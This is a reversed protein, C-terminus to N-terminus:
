HSPARPASAGQTGPPLTFQFVAGHRAGQTAWLRGGHAEIIARCISLGMGMGSAKTSYFPEFVRELNAPDIGPGSDQVALLVGNSDVRATSILLEKPRDDVVSMAEAANLVLNLIVQQLQVRDGMVAPLDGAAESRVIVQSRQLEPLSLAIVERTADNLDMLETPGDKKAFLAHLRKIVATARNADRIMRRIMESAGNVDPPDNALMRFGTNANTLIGSLPQNVEHAISASMQGIVAVRNAHAMEIRIEHYRRESQRAAEEARKRETLDVAFAVRQEMREGFPAAGLLVPVRTGDRRLFEKEYTQVAGTGRLEGHSREDADRWDQPTMDQWRLLGTDLENRGHGVLQLFADNCELIRGARDLVFIGIINSDVLCQIKAELRDTWQRIETEARKRAAIETKLEETSEVAQYAASAFRGLSELLRLDEADFRRRDTHVIAWITGVAKCKVYFPALLGEEALPTATGLYPYRLEWHTFLMPANRDLVDGCPGFDRPTGGGTHSQWAGSIAAWYFSKGDKTLLSLGASDAQLGELVRDALTQLITVPSDALATSLAVLANNESAHDPPRSPRRSLEDTRVIAELPVDGRPLSTALQVDDAREASGTM